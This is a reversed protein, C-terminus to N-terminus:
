KAKIIEDVIAMADNVDVKRDSNVDAKLFKQMTAGNEFNEYVANYMDYVLQADNIDVTGISDGDTIGSENVNFTQDLTVKIV